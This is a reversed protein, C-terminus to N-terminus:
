KRLKMISSVLSSNEKSNGLLISIPKLIDINSFIIKIISAIPVALFMGTIGWIWGWFILSFLVFVPSLDMRKGTYHPDVFSGISIHVVNLLVAMIIMNLTVGHQVFGFLIPLLTAIMPGISPIFNLIFNLIGWFTAFDVNFLWLTIGVLVGMIVSMVTKIFIYQQVQNDIESINKNILEGSTTFASIIKNEFNNKGLTMFIWFILTLIVDELIATLIYFLSSFLGTKVLHDFIHSYDFRSMKLQFLDYFEKTSLGFPQLIEKLLNNTSRNYFDAKSIFTQVNLILLQALLYYVGIIGIIILILSFWKPIKYQRLYLTIPHFLFTLFIAITFPILVSRLASLIYVIIVFSIFGLFYTTMRQYNYPKEASLM